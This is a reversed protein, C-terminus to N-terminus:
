TVAWGKEALRQEKLSDILAKLHGEAADDQQDQWNDIPDDGMIGTAQSVKLGLVDRVTTDYSHEAVLYYIPLMAVELGPRWLRDECQGHIAPSWDLEAFVACTGHRQFGDFGVSARLALLAADAQGTIFQKRARRKKGPTEKGTLRVLRTGELAETIADHVAHHHAFILPREGAEVLTKIWAAVFPAKSVGAALRTETTIERIAQGRERWRMGDYSKSLGVARAIMKGYMDEDHDVTVITRAKPPLQQAVDADRKRRRIMLGEGILYENLKKPNKVMRSQFGGCWEREFSHRDGLSWFDIANMVSWMEEGYNYIPTASLGWVHEAHQTIAMASHYKKSTYIRLDQVEDFVVTRMGKALIERQWYHLLGYHTIFFPVDPLTRASKSKLWYCYRNAPVFSDLDLEGDPRISLFEEMMEMWQEIVNAPVVFLVPYRRATVVALLAEVTKGLGTQNANLVREGAIMSAVDEAQYPYPTGKFEPPAVVPEIKITKNRRSALAIAKDLDERYAKYFGGQFDLPFRLMLWHLNEINRPAAPFRLEDGHACGPFLRKALERVYPDAKTVIYFVQGDVNEVRLLTGYTRDPQPDLPELHRPPFTM